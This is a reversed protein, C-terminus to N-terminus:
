WMLKTTILNSTDESAFWDNCWQICRKLNRSDDTTREVLVGDNDFFEVVIPGTDGYEMVAKRKGFKPNDYTIKNNNSM